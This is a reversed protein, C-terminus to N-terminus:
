YGGSMPAHKVKAFTSSHLLHWGERKKEKKLNKSVSNRILGVVWKSKQKGIGPDMHAPAIPKDRTAWVLMGGQNEEREFGVM